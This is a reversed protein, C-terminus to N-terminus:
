MVRVATRPGSKGKSVADKVVVIVLDPIHWMTGYQVLALGTFVSYHWIGHFIWEYGAIEILFFVVGVLILAFGVFVAPDSFKVVVLVQGDDVYLMKVFLLLIAFLLIMLSREPGVSQNPGTISTMVVVLNFAFVTLCLFQGWHISSRKNFEYTVPLSSICIFVVIFGGFAYTNDIAQLTHVEAKLLCYGTCQCTHYFTSVFLVTLLINQIIGSYVTKDRVKHNIVLNAIIPLHSVLLYTTVYWPEPTSATDLIAMGQTAARDSILRAAGLISYM